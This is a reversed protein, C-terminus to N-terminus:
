PIAKQQTTVQINGKKNYFQISFGNHLNKAVRTIDIIHDGGDQIIAPHEDGLKLLHLKFM